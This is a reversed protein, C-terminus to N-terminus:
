QPEILARTIPHDNDWTINGSDKNYYFVAGEDDTHEVWDPPLPAHLAAEAVWILHEDGSGAVGLHDALALVDAAQPALGGKGEREKARGLASRVGMIESAWMRCDQGRVDKLAPNAGRSLLWLAFDQHGNDLAIHLATEEDNNVSNVTDGAELALFGFM